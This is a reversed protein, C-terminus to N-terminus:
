ALDIIAVADAQSSTFTDARADSERIPQCNSICVDPVAVRGSKGFHCSIALGDADCYNASAPHYKGL